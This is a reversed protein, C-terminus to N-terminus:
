VFGWWCLERSGILRATETVQPIEIHTCRVRSGAAHRQRPQQLLPQCENAPRDSNKAFLVRGDTTANALAVLSDCAIRVHRMVSGLYRATAGFALYQYPDGHLVAMM